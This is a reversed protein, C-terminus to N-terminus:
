WGSFFLRPPAVEPVSEPRAWWRGDGDREAVIGCRDCTWENLDRHIWRTEGCRCEIGNYDDPNATNTTM